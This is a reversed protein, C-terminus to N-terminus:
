LKNAWPDGNQFSDVLKHSSILSTFKFAYSPRIAKAPFPFFTAMESLNRGSEKEIFYFVTSIDFLKLFNKSPM